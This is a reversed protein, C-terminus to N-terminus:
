TEMFRFIYLFIEKLNMNELLTAIVESLPTNKILYVANKQVWTSKKWNPNSEEIKFKIPEKKRYEKMSHKFRVEVVGNKGAEGFYRAKESNAPHRVTSIIDEGDLDKYTLKHTLIPFIPHTYCIYLPKKSIDVTEKNRKKKAVYNNTRMGTRRGAEGFEAIAADGELYESNTIKYDDMMQLYASRFTGDPNKMQKKGITLRNSYSMILINEYDIKISDENQKKIPTPNIEVAANAINIANKGIKFLFQQPLYYTYGDVEVMLKDFYISTETSVQGLVQQLDKLNPLHGDFIKYEKDKEAIVVRLRQINLTKDFHTLTLGTKFNELFSRLDYNNSVPNAALDGWKLTLERKQYHVYEPL